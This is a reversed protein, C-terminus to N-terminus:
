ARKGSPGENSLRNNQIATLWQDSSVFGFLMVKCSLQNAIDMMMM